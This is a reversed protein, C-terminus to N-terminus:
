KQPPICSSTRLVWRKMETLNKYLSYAYYIVFPPIILTFLSQVLLQMIPKDKTLPAALINLGVVILLLVVLRQFVDWFHGTVLQRSRQFAALYAKGEFFYVYVSAFGWVLLIIGPVLLLLLGGFIILATLLGTITFPVIHKRSEAFAESATVTHKHIVERFMYFAATSAWINAILGVLSVLTYLTQNAALFLNAFVSPFIGVLIIPVFLTYHKIYFQFSAALLKQIGLLETTKHYSSRKDM